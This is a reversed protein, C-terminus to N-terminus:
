DEKVEKRREGAKKYFKEEDPGPFRLMPSASYFDFGDKDDSDVIEIEYGFKELKNSLIRILYDTVEKRTKENSYVNLSFVDFTTGNEDMNFIYNIMGHKNPDIKQIQDLNVKEYMYLVRFLIKTKDPEQYHIIGLDMTAQPADNCILKANDFVGESLQRVQENYDDIFIQALAEKPEISPNIVNKGTLEKFIVDHHSTSLCVQEM